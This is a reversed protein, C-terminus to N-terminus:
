SELKDVVDVGSKTIYVGYKGNPALGILVRNVGTEDKIVKTRNESAIQEFNNNIAASLISFDMNPTLKIPSLM